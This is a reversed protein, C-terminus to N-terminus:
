IKSAFSSRFFNSATLGVYSTFSYCSSKRTAHYLFEFMNFQVAILEGSEDKYAYVQRFYLNGNARLVYLVVM